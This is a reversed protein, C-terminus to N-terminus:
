MIVIIPNADLIIKATGPGSVAVNRISIKDGALVGKLLENVEASLFAGVNHFKTVKNTSVQTVEVDFDTVYFNMEFDFNEFYLQLGNRQLNILCISFNRHDCFIRIQPDPVRKIRYFVTDLVKTKKNKTGSVFFSVGGKQPVHTCRYIYKGNKEKVIVGEDVTISIQNAEYGPVAFSIPNDVGIYVVNMKDASVVAKQAYSFVSSILM